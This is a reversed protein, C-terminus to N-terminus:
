PPSLSTEAGCWEHCEGCFERRWSTLAEYHRLRKPCSSGGATPFTAFPEAPKWRRKPANHLQHPRQHRPARKWHSAMRPQGHAKGTKDVGFTPVIAMTTTHSLASVMSRLPPLTPRGFLIQTHQFSTPSHSITSNLARISQNYAGIQLWVTSEFVQAV